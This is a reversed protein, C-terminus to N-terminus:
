YVPVPTPEDPKKDDNVVQADRGEIRLPNNEMQTQVLAPDFRDNPTEIKNPKVDTEGITGYLPNTPAVGGERVANTEEKMHLEQVREKPGQSMNNIRQPGAMRNEDTVARLAYGENNIVDEYSMGAKYAVGGNIPGTYEQHLAERGTTTAYVSDLETGQKQIGVPAGPVAYNGRNTPDSRYGTATTHAEQAGRINSMDGFHRM